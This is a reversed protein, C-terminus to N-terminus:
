RRAPQKRTLGEVFQKAATLDYSYLRRAMAIAGFMDGSEALELLRTEQEERSLQEIKVFDQAAAGATQVQTHRTLADLITQMGPVVGWEIRLLAPAALQVPFHHYRTSINKAGPHTKTFVREREEALAAACQSSDGALELELLRRTKTTRGLRGRDDRDPLDHREQVARASRIQSYPVFVVAFDQEAFHHNLYSRFKVLLGHDTMRILWNSPRFRATVLRQFILLCFACIAALYYLLWVNHIWGFLLTALAMAALFTAGIVARAKSYHFVRDRPYWPADALRMLQM